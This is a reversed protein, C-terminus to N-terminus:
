HQIAPSSTLPHQIGVEEAVVGIRMNTGVLLSRQAQSEEARGQTMAPLPNLSDCLPIGADMVRPNRLTQFLLQISVALFRARSKAVGLFGTKLSYRIERKGV